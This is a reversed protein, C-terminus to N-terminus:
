FGETQVQESAYAMCLQRRSYDLLVDPASGEVSHVSLRQGCLLAYASGSPSFAM